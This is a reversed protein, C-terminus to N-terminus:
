LIQHTVPTQKKQNEICLTSMKSIMADAIQDAQERTSVDEMLRCLDEMPSAAELKRREEYMLIESVALFEGKLAETTLRKNERLSVIRAKVISLPTRCSHDMIHIDAGHEILLKVVSRQGNCVALHLPTNGLIDQINPDARNNVLLTVIGSKHQSVAIHLPTRKKEDQFNAQVGESLLESVKSEDGSKVAKLLRAEGLIQVGGASYFALRARRALRSRRRHHAVPILQHQGIWPDYGVTVGSTKPSNPLSLVKGEPLSLRFDFPKLKTPDFFPFSLVAKEENKLREMSRSAIIREMRHDVSQERSGHPISTLNSQVSTNEALDQFQNNDSINLSSLEPPDSNLQEDETNSSSNINVTIHNHFHVNINQPRPPQSSALQALSPVPVPGILSAPDDIDM